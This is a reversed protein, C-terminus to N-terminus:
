ARGSVSRAYERLSRVPERYVELKLTIALAELHAPVLLWLAPRLAPEYRGGVVHGALGLGVAGASWRYASTRYRPLRRFRVLCTATSCCQALLLAAIPARLSAPMDPRLRYSACPATLTFVADALGDLRRQRRLATPACLRRALMGDALDIIINGVMIAACQRRRNRRALCPLWLAAILRAGSLGAPVHQVFAKAVGGSCWMGVRHM